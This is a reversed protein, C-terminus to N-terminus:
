LVRYILFEAINNKIMKGHTNQKEMNLKYLLSDETEVGLLIKVLNRSPIDFENQGLHVVMLHDNELLCMVFYIIESSTLKCNDLNLHVIKSNM